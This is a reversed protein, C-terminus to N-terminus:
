KSCSMVLRPLRRIPYASLYRGAYDVFPRSLDILSPYIVSFTRWPFLSVSFPPSFYPFRDCNKPSKFAKATFCRLVSFFFFKDESLARPYVKVKEGRMRGNWKRVTKDPQQFEWQRGTRSGMERGFENYQPQQTQTWECRCHLVKWFYVRCNDHISIYYINFLFSM